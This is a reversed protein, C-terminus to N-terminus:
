SGSDCEWVVLTYDGDPEQVIRIHQGATMPTYLEHVVPVRVGTLVFRRQGGPLHVKELIEAEFTECVFDADDEVRGACATRSIAKITKLKM